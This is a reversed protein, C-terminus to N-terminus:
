SVSIAFSRQRPGDATTGALIAFGAYALTGTSGFGRGIPCRRCLRTPPSCEGAHFKTRNGTGAEGACVALREGAEEVSGLTAGFIPTVSGPPHAMALRAEKWSVQSTKRRDHVAEGSGPEALDVVPLMSGDMEVILRPVGPRDSGDSKQKEQALM